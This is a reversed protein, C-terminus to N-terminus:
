APRGGAAHRALWGPAAPHSPGAPRRCLRHPPRGRDLLHRTLASAAAEQSFGVSPEQDSLSMLRVCPLAGRALLKAAGNPLDTGTVLMGAPRHLLQERLLQEAEQPDYHTVGILTQFGAPRLTRQVAELLDVFLNNALAPVLVGVHSSHRSALARAAPDPTYGLQEAAMKARAALEADVAREGRLARSVTIPSVGALRAVDALTVQGTSRSKPPM